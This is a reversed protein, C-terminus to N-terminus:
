RDDLQVQLLPTRDTGSPLPGPGFGTLHGRCSPGPISIYKGVNLHNPPDIAYIGYLVFNGLRGERANTM